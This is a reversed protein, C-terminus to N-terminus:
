SALLSFYFMLPNMHDVFEWKTAFSANKLGNTSTMLIYRGTFLGLSRWMVAFLVFSCYLMLYLVAQQEIQKIHVLTCLAGITEFKRQPRWRYELTPGSGM